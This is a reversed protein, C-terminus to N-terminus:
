TESEHEYFLTDLVWPKRYNDRRYTNNSNLM